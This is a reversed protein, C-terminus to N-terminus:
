SPMAPTVLARGFPPRQPGDLTDIRNSQGGEL